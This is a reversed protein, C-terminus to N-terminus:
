QGGVVFVVDGYRGPMRAVRSPVHGLLNLWMQRTFRGKGVIIGFHRARARWEKRPFLSCANQRVTSVLSRPVTSLPAEIAVVRKLHPLRVGIDSPFSQLVQDVLTLDRLNKLGLIASPFVQFASTVNLTRLFQLGRGGRSGIADSIAHPFRELIAPVSVNTKSQLSADRKDASMAGDRSQNGSDVRASKRAFAMCCAGGRVVRRLADNRLVELPDVMKLSSSANPKACLGSCKGANHGLTSETDFPGITLERLNPLERALVKAVAENMSHLTLSFIHKAVMTPAHTPFLRPDVYLVIHERQQSTHSKRAGKGNCMNTGEYGAVAGIKKTSKSGNLNTSTLPLHSIQHSLPGNKPSTCPGRQTVGDTDHSADAALVPTLYRVRLNFMRRFVRAEKKRNALGATALCLSHLDNLPIMGILREVLDSPLALIHQVLSMSKIETNENRRTRGLHTFKHRVGGKSGVRREKRRPADESSFSSPPSATSKSTGEKTTRSSSSKRSRKLTM